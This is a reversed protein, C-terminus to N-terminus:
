RFFELYTNIDNIEQWIAERKKDDVLSLLSSLAKSLIANGKKTRFYTLVIIPLINLQMSRLAPIVYTHYIVDKPAFRPLTNLSLGHVFTGLLPPSSIIDQSYPQSSLQAFYDPHFHALQM